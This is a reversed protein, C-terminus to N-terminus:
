KSSSGHLSHAHHSVIGYDVVPDIRAIDLRGFCQMRWFASVSTFTNLLFIAALTKTAMTFSHESLHSHTKMNISFPLPLVLHTIFTKPPKTSHQQQQTSFTKHV